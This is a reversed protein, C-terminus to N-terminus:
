SVKDILILLKYIDVEYGVEDSKAVVTAMRDQFAPLYDSFVNNFRDSPNIVIHAAGSRAALMLHAFNSGEMSVTLKAGSIVNLIKELPEEVGVVQFGKEVLAATLADENSILRKEGTGGRRLYVFNDSSLQNISGVLRKLRKLRARRNSNQGVDEFFTMQEFHVFDHEIRDIGLLRLYDEAHGWSPDCWLYLDEDDTKLFSTSLADTLWHGFYRSTVASSAYMGKGRKLIKKTKLTSLYGGGLGAYSGGLVHFGFPSALVNKFVYRVTAGHIQEGGCVRKRELEASSDDHFGTVSNWSEPEMAIGPMWGAEEPCIIDVSEALASLAPTPRMISM